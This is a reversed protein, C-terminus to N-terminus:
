GSCFFVDGAMVNTATAAPGDEGVVSVNGPGHGVGGRNFQVEWEGKEDAVAPFSAAGDFTVTVKEGPRARGNLFSRAGYEANVQFVMNDGFWRPLTVAAQVATMLASLFLCCIRLLVGANRAAITQM